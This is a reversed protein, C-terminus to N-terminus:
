DGPEVAQGHLVALAGRHILLRALTTPRLGYAKAAQSLAEYGIQTLRVNVQRERSGRPRTADSAVAELDISPPTADPLESAQPTAKPKGYISSYGMRAWSKEQEQVCDWYTEYGAANWWGKKMSKWTDILSELGDRVQYGDSDAGSDSRYRDSDARDMERGDVDEAV